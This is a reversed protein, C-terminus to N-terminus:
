QQQIRYFRHTGTTTDGTSSTSGSATVTTLTSWTADTINNKYQVVYTAGATSNWSLTLSNGVQTLGTFQLANPDFGSNSAGPSAVALAKITSGGNPVRGESVDATQRGFTVSDIVNGNPAFLAISEGGAALKFSAHLQGNTSNENDAWIFLFGGAPITTGVPLVYNGPSALDTSLSYGSLDAAQAGANYLEFWDDFDNDDPDQITRSNSAMWENIFVRVPPTSLTNV